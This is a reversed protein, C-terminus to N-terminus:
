TVGCAATIQDTLLFFCWGAHIHVTMNHQQVGDLHIGVSGSVDLFDARVCCLAVRQDMSTM